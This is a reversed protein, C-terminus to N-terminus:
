PRTGIQDAWIRPPRVAWWRMWYLGALTLVPPLIKILDAYLRGPTQLTQYYLGYPILIMLSLALVSAPVRRKDWREWVLAVILILGPLLVVHNSPFIAFGLLPNLALALFAAWAMHRFYDNMSVVAEYFLIGVAIVTLWREVSLTIRPFIYSLTIAFTYDAARNWDYLVARLYDVVWGSRALLSILVLAVLTMGFGAFASWRRYAVLFVLAFLFFLAGTEWQYAVLCLLAGALEDADSQLAALILLYLLTLFIAPSSSRLAAFSFYGFLGFTVLLVVMWRPPEWEILRISLLVVGILAAQSLSLWIGQAVAFDRFLALPVYLLVIYFPDNLVFPYENLFAERGYALNQVRGAVTLGYPESGGFLFVRAASWRQYLWEGGEFTRALYINLALLGGVLILAGLIFAVDAPTLFPQSKRIDKFAM